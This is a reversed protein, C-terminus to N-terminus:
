SKAYVGGDLVINSGTLYSSCESLLFLYLNVLDDNTGLRQLPIKSNIFDNLESLNKKRRQGWHGYETLIHGPCVSNVRQKPAMQISLNKVLVELAAKASSYEYPANVNIKSAISSTVIHSSNGSPNFLEEYENILTTIAVLLNRNSFYNVDWIRKVESSSYPFKEYAKGSGVTSVLCNTKGKLLNDKLYSILNEYELYNVKAIKVQNKLDKAYASYIESSYLITVKANNKLLHGVLSRGIEGLGGAVLFHYDNFNFNM